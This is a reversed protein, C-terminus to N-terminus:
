PKPGLRHFYYVAKDKLGAVSFEVLGIARLKLMKERVHDLQCSWELALRSRSIQHSKSSDNLLVTLTIMSTRTVESHRCGNEYLWSVLQDRTMIQNM